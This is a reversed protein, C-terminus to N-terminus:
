KVKVCSIHESSYGKAYCVVGRSHDESVVVVNGTQAETPSQWISIMIGFLVGFFSGFGILKMQAGAM